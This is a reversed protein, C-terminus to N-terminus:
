VGLVNQLCNFEDEPGNGIGENDDDFDNCAVVECEENNRKNDKQESMWSKVTNDEMLRKLLYIEFKARQTRDQRVMNVIENFRMIGEPSWGGGQKSTARGGKKSIGGNTYLSPTLMTRLKGVNTAKDLWRDYSNEFILIVLAETSPTCYKALPFCLHQQNWNKSGVGHKVFVSLFWSYTGIDQSLRLVDSVTPLMAGTEQHLKVQDQECTLAILISFTLIVNNVNVRQWIFLFKGLFARQVLNGVDNRRNNLTKNIHGAWEEWFSEYINKKVNVAKCIKLCLADPESSWKNIKQISIFKCKDFFPGRIHDNLTSIVGSDKKANVDEDLWKNTTNPESMKSVMDNINEPALQEEIHQDVSAGPM